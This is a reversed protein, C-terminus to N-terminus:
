KKEEFTTLLLLGLLNQVFRQSSDLM